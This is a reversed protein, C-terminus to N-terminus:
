LRLLPPDHWQTDKQTWIIHSARLSLEACESTMKKPLKSAAVWSAWSKGPLGRSGMEVCWLKPLLGANRASEVLPAYKATKREHAGGFNSEFPVTLEIIHVHHEQDLLVLDPRWASDTHFPLRYTHGPLDVIIHSWTGQPLSEFIHQLVSDHRWKYLGAKLLTDCHNLVHHLTEKVNCKLCNSNCAVKWRCLNARTPLVDMAAKSAFLTVNAPLSWIMAKWKRDSELTRDLKAWAGQVLLQTVTEKLNQHQHEALTKAAEKRNMPLTAGFLHAIGRSPRHKRRLKAKLAAVASPDTSTQAIHSKVLQGSEAIDMLSPLGITLRLANRSTSRPLHWWKKVYAEVQGSIKALATPLLDQVMLVWRMKPQAFTKYLKVKDEKPLPFDDLSKMISMLSHSAITAKEQATQSVSLEMGLFKCAADEVNLITQNYIDIDIKRYKGKSMGFARCKSPKIEMGLWSVIEELLAMSHQLKKADQTIVTLDDAFCKLFHRPEGAAQQYGYGPCATLLAELGVQMVLLFLLPSLTDGQLVGRQLQLLGTSWSKCTIATFTRAYLDGVYKGVWPPLGFHELAWIIREHPVSGFANKLDVLVMFFNHRNRKAQWLAEDLVLDHEIAGAVGTLFGKQVTKDIINNSIVIDELWAAVIAHFLKALTPTLTIPRYNNLTKTGGKHLLVTVGYRWLEPSQQQQIIKNYLNALLHPLWSFHVLTAYTVGDIGAASQSRAKKRLAKQVMRATIVLASFKINQRAPTLWSPQTHAVSGPAYVDLFFQECEEMSCEPPDSGMAKGWVLDALKKPNKSALDHHQRIKKARAIEEASEKLINHIKTDALAQSTDGRSGGIKRRNSRVAEKVTAMASALPQRTGHHSASGKKNDKFGLNILTATIAVHLRDIARAGNSDDIIGGVTEQM